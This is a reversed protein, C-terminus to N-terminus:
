APCGTLFVILRTLHGSKHFMQFTYRSRTKARWAETQPLLVKTKRKFFTASGKESDTGNLM